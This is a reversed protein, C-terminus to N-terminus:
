VHLGSSLDQSDATPNTNGSQTTDGSPQMSKMNGKHFGHNMGEHGMGFMGGFQMQHGTSTYLVTNNSPDVIVMYSMNKDDIVNFAYVVYGQMVTLRGSITKGNTVAAAATDAATSLKTSVNSMITQQLNISGHIQPPQTQSPQQNTSASDAYAASLGITAAIAVGLIIAFLSRNRTLDKANM